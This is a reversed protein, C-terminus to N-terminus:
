PPFSHYRAFLGPHLGLGDLPSEPNADLSSHCNCCLIAFQQCRSICHSGPAALAQAEDGILVDLDFNKARAKTHHLWLEKARAQVM